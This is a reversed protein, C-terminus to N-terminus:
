SAQEREYQSVEALQDRIERALQRSDARRTIAVTGWHPHCYAGGSYSTDGTQWDWSGDISWGVTLLMSPVTDDDCDPYARYDQTITPKLARILASLDKISPLTM